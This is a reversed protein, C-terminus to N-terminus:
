VEGCGALDRVRCTLVNLCSLSCAILIMCLHGSGDAQGQVGRLSPRGRLRRKRRDSSRRVQGRSRSAEEAGAEGKEM